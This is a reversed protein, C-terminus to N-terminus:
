FYAPERYEGFVGKLVDTMEGETAYAMACDILYPVLNKDSAAAEKLADLKAQVAGNDREARLKDLAAVQDIEVQDDILLIPIDSDDNGETFDNVGVM